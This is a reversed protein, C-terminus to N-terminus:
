NESGNQKDGKIKKTRIVGLASFEGIMAAFFAMTLSDPVTWMHASFWLVIATYTIILLFVTVVLFKSFRGKKRSLKARELTLRAEVENM